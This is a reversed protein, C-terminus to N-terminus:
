ESAEAASLVAGAVPGHTLSVDVTTGEPVRAILEQLRQESAHDTDLHDTAWMWGVGSGIALEVVNHHLVLKAGFAQCLSAALDVQRPTSPSFDVPCLVTRISLM